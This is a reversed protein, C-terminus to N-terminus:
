KEYGEAKLFNSYRKLNAIGKEYVKTSKEVFNVKAKLTM